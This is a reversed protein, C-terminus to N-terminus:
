RYQANYPMLITIQSPDFRKAVLDIALNIGVACNSINCSSGGVANQKVAGYRNGLFIVSSHKKYTEKNYEAIGCAIGRSPHDM